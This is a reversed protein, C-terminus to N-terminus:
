SAKRLKSSEAAIKNYDAILCEECLWRGWWERVYEKQTHCEECLKTQPEYFKCGIKKATEEDCYAYLPNKNMALDCIHCGNRLQKVHICISM